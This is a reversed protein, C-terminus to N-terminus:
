AYVTNEDYVAFGIRGVGEGTPFGSEPTSIKTWSTGADTSKYIGSSNGNGTFNWAKRDKEWAAAYMINFNEPAHAIDIIGTVDNIYLTKQWTKGGDTTKFIGREENPSYLHGTVGVVVEDPKNPNIIIRGFHHGDNLGMDQWTEGKDTSKLMGIGAYSSRSSINEGTGVWLTGNKWDVAIDGINQTAANDMVPVFSTGNNRTYWLGGAAYGVYFETPDQPNVELDAVRGSMVSPGINKLPFNKVLSNKALQNKQALAQSVMKESSAPIQSFGASFIALIFLFYLNKM